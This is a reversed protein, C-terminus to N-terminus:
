KKRCSINRVFSCNLEENDFKIFNARIEVLIQKKEKSHHETEFLLSGKERLEAFHLAWRENSYVPDIDSINMSLLEDKTYNLSKCAAQNVNLIQGDSKVWFVADAVHDIGYQILKLEKEALVKETVDRFNDIIGNIAPDHFMNTVTGEMWRWSGDKHKLLTRKKPTPVGPNQIILNWTESAGEVFDPHILNFIFLEKLDEETYGVVSEISPSAYTAKGEMNLIIFSDSSNEVLSRFRKEHIALQQNIEKIKTIDRLHCAAGIVKNKHWIPKISIQFWSDEYKDVFEIKMFVDASFVKDYYSKYLTKELQDVSFDFINDGVKIYKGTALTIADVFPQNCSILCYSLDVSWMLDDTNNILADLNEKDLQKQIEAEKKETIIRFNSVIAQIGHEHLLNTKTADCWIMRGEKHRLRLQQNFSAGPTELILNVNRNFTDLDEPDVFDVCSASNIEAETYGFSRVFSPSSYFIKGDVTSLAMMDESSEVLLRFRRETQFALDVFHKREREIRHKDIANFIAAPLRELRGKMLYDDAGLKLVEVAIEESVTGTILIFPLDIGANQIYHLASISDFDPLSHDSLIIDPVDNNLANVFGEKDDVVTIEFDVGGKVLTRQVLEADFSMDELHLIAIKKQGNSKM